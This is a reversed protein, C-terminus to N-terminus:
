EEQRSFGMSLPGQRAVTWPTAFLQVRSLSQACVCCKIKNIKIPACKSYLIPNIEVTRCLSDAKYKCIAGRKQIEKGNLNGRLVSNGLTHPRNENVIM